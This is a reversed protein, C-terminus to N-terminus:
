QTPLSESIIKWYDRLQLIYHDVKDQDNIAKSILAGMTYIGVIGTYFTPNGFVNEKLAISINTSLAEETCKLFEKSAKEHKDM